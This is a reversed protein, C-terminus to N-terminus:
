KIEFHYKKKNLNELIKSPWEIIIANNIKDFFQKREM